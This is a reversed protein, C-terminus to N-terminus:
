FCFMRRNLRLWLRFMGWGLCFGGTLLSANYLLTMWLAPRSKKACLHLDVRMRRRIRREEDVPTAKLAASM